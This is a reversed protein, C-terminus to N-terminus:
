SISRDETSGYKNGKSKKIACCNVFNAIATLGLGLPLFPMTEDRCMSLIVCVIAAAAIIMRTVTMIIKKTDKMNTNEKSKGTRLKHGTTSNVRRDALPTKFSM